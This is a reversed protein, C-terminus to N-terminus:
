YSPRTSPCINLFRQSYLSDPAWSMSYRDEPDSVISRSAIAPPSRTTSDIQPRHYMDTPSRALLGNYSSVEVKNPDCTEFRFAILQPVRLLHRCSTSLAGVQCAPARGDACIPLSGRM